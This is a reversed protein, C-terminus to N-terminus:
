AAHRLRLTVRNRGQDYVHRVCGAYQAILRV